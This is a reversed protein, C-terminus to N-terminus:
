LNSNEFFNEYEQDSDFGEDNEDDPDYLYKEQRSNLNNKFNNFFDGKIDEKDLGFIYFGNKLRDYM